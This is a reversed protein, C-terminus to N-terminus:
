VMDPLWGIVTEQLSIVRNANFLAQFQNNILNEDFTLQIDKKFANDNSFEPNVPVLKEEFDSDMQHDFENLFSVYLHDGKITLSEAM